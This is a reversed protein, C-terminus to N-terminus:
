SVYITLLPLIGRKLKFSFGCAVVIIPLNCVLWLWVRTPKYNESFTKSQVFNLSHEYSM